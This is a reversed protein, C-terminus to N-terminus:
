TVLAMLLPTLWRLILLYFAEPQKVTDRLYCDRCLNKWEPNSKKYEARQFLLNTVQALQLPSFTQLTQSSTLNVVNAKLSFFFCVFFCGVLFVWWLLAFCGVYFPHGPLM